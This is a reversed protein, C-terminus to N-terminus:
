VKKGSAAQWTHEAIPRWYNAAAKMSLLTLKSAEELYQEATANAFRYNIRMADELDACKMLQQSREVNCGLRRNVFTAMEGTMTAVGDMIAGQAKMATDFSLGNSAALAAMADEPTDSMVRGQRNKTTM